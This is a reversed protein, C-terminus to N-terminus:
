RVGETSPIATVNETVKEANMGFYEKIIDKAVVATNGGSGANEIIVVIAIEPDDYPAFGTFWGNVQGNGTEASGTKGAIDMGLDSFIYYATGGPQSTVGKMGKLIAQLNEEKIDIKELKASDDIGLKENVTKEIETKPVENGEADTISKILTVDQPVGTTPLCEM